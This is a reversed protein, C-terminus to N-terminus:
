EIKIRRTTVNGNADTIRVINIGRQPSNLRIGGITFYETSVIESPTLTAVGTLYAEEDFNVDEGYLQSSSTNIFNSALITPKSMTYVRKGGDPYRGVSQEGTHASYTLTDAWSRDAATLIVHQQDSNELRFDSHLQTIPSLRDAWVVMYGHAPIVTSAGTSSASIKYKEPLLLNDSLYMGSIDIDHSTTNYLEIWDNKKYYDNVFISNAASIENIVVPTSGAAILCSGDIPEFVARLMMDEDTAIDLQRNTSVTSEYAAVSAVLEADWYIDTSTASNNHVEVAIINTGQRMLSPDIDFSGSDPNGSSAGTAYTDYTPSGDPMLHRYAEKGNVYLIFGDDATWNLTFRDTSHPSDSLTVIRRFYYTPRKNSADSGYSITTNIGTKGYGLPAYSSHWSSISGTKWDTADLSGGDWYYWSDGKVFLNKRVSALKEWGVFNYGAPASVAISVPSFLTGDFRNLPVPQRNILFSAQPINSHLSMKMGRGLGFAQRLSAMRAERSADSTMNSRQENFSLWPEKGEIALAPAVLRCISDGIQECRSPTFVSGGVICYADILQRRFRPNRLMNNYVALIDNGYNGNITLINNSNNWGWDQDHLTLRYKGNDRSRYGKLNNNNNIWDSCGIYTVAAWFNAFEDIDVIDHCIQDYVSDDTANRSLSLWNDFSERTGAKQFYGNSYEFADMNDDDYGYNATGHYRNNPERLNFQGIYSGNFFVQVPQYDQCDVYFGSSILVSQTIADRVRGHQQSDNDNGGNRVLIQKYKNHSRHPFFPCDISTLGEYVRSAKIKFSSPHYHRSWGGSITFEAEQNVAMTNDPTIYEFNVPREWDMNINSKGHNRGEIGNTGDVYIGISDNYLNDPATTISIVPLYYDNDRKIYSRTV